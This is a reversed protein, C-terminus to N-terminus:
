QEWERLRILLQLSTLMLATLTNNSIKDCEDSSYSKYNKKHTFLSNTGDPAPIHVLGSGLRSGLGM